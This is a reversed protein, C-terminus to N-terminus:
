ENKNDRLEKIKEITLGTVRSITEIDMDISLLNLAIEVTRIEKEQEIGKKEGEKVGGEFGEEIGKEIGKEFGKEFGEGFGKKEGEQRNKYATQELKKKIIDQLVYELMKSMDDEGENLISKIHDQLKLFLINSTAGELYKMLAKFYEAADPDDNLEKFIVIIDRIKEPLSSNHIYKLIQFLIRLSPIGTIKEDSLISLNIIIFRLDPFIINQKAYPIFHYVPQNETNSESLNQFIVISFVVPVNERGHQRQHYQLVMAINEQLQVGVRRDPYSKHEFLFYVHKSKDPTLGAYLSDSFLEQLEPSIHSDKVAELTSPDILKKDEASLYHEIFSQAVSLRSFSDKFFKDHPHILKKNPM